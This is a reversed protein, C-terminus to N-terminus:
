QYVEATLVATWDKPGTTMKCLLEFNSFAPILFGVARAFSPYQESRTNDFETQIIIEDNLKFQWDNNNSNNEETHVSVKALLYANSTDFKLITQFQADSVNVIGSYAYAHKGIYNLNTKGVGAPNAASLM